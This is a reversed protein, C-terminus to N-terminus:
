YLFIVSCAILVPPCYVDKIKGVNFIPISMPIAESSTMRQLRTKNCMWMNIM